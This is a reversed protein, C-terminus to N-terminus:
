CFLINLFFLVWLSKFSHPLRKYEFDETWDHVKRILKLCLMSKPQEVYHKKNIDKPDSIFVIEMEPFLKPDCKHSLYIAIVRDLFDSAIETTFTSYNESQINYTVNKSM